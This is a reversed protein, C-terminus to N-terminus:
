PLALLTRAFISLSSTGTDTPAFTLWYTENLHQVRRKSRIDYRHPTSADVVAGSCTPLLRTNLLWSEYPNSSADLPGGALTGAGKSEVILGLRAVGGTSAAAYALVLHTRIVTVGELSGGAAVFESLLDVAVYTGSVIANENLSRTAWEM